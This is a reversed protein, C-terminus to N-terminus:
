IIIIHMQEDSLLPLLETKSGDAHNSLILLLVDAKIDINCLYVFVLGRQTFLLLNRSLQSENVTNPEYRTAEVQERPIQNPYISHHTLPASTFIFEGVDIPVIDSISHTSLASSCTMLLQLNVWDEIIDSDTM